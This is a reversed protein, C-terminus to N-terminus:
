EANPLVAFATRDPLLLREFHLGDARRELIIDANNGTESSEEYLRNVLISSTAGNRATMSLVVSNAGRTIHITCDGAPLTKAGVIVPDAFRVNVTDVPVQANLSGCVTLAAACILMAIKKM